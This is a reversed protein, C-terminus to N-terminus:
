TRRLRVYSHLLHDDHERRFVLMVVLNVLMLVAGTGMAFAEAGASRWFLVCLAIFIAAYVTAAVWLQRREAPTMVDSLLGTSKATLARVYHHMGHDDVEARRDEPSFISTLLREVMARAFVKDHHVRGGRDIFLEVGCHALAIDVKTEPVMDMTNVFRFYRRAIRRELEVEFAPDAVAPQGFTYLGAIPIEGEFAFRATTLVALAGGMSHGTVLLPQEDDRLRRVAEFVHPWLLDVAALYGSHVQGFPSPAPQHRLNTKWDALEDTGRFAVVVFAQHGLVICNHNQQAIRAVRDDPIGMLGAVRSVEDDQAYALRSAVACMSAFGAEYTPPVGEPVPLNAAAEAGATTPMNSSSVPPRTVVLPTVMGVVRTLLRWAVRVVGSVIGNGVLGWLIFTWFGGKLEWRTLPITGGVLAVGQCWTMYVVTALTGLVPLFRGVLTLTQAMRRINRGRAPAHGTLAPVQRREARLPHSGALDQRPNDGGNAEAGRIAILHIAKLSSVAQSEISV